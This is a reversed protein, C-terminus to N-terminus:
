IQAVPTGDKIGLKALSITYTLKRLNAFTDLMLNEAAWIQQLGSPMKVYLNFYKIPNGTPNAYSFIVELHNSLLRKFPQLYTVQSVTDIKFSFSQAGTTFSCFCMVAAVPVYKFVQMTHTLTKM